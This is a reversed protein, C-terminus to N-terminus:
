VDGHHRQLVVRRLLPQPAADIRKVPQIFFTLLLVPHHRDAHMRVDGAHRVADAVEVLQVAVDRLPGVYPHASSLLDKVPVSRQCFASASSGFSLSRAAFHSSSRRRGSSVNRSKWSALSNRMWWGFRTPPASSSNAATTVKPASSARAQAELAQFQTLKVACWMISPMNGGLACSSIQPAERSASM